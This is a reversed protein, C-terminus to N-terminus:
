IIKGSTGSSAFVFQRYTSLLFGLAQASCAGAKLLFFGKVPGGFTWSPLPPSLATPRVQKAKRGPTSVEGM